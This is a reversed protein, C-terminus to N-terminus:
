TLSNDFKICKSGNKHQEKIYQDTNFIFNNNIYKKFEMTDIINKNLSNIDYYISVEFHNEDLFTNMNIGNYSNNTKNNVTEEMKKYEGIILNMKTRASDNFLNLDLKINVNKLYNKFDYIFEQTEIMEYGNKEDINTSTCTIKSDSITKVSNAIYEKKKNKCGICFTIIILLLIFKKM